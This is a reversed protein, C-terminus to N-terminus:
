SGRLQRQPVRRMVFGSDTRILDVPFSGPLGDGQAPYLWASDHVDLRRWLTVSDEFAVEVCEGSAVPLAAPSLLRLFAKEMAREPMCRSVVADDVSPISGHVLLAYSDRTSRYVEAVMMYAGIATLVTRWGEREENVIVLVRPQAGRMMTLLRDTSLRDDQSSLSRADAAGYGAQALGVVQPVVHQELSHGALEVEVVWWEKYDRHVLAFDARNTGFESVVTSRFRVTFHAPFLHGAEQEVLREFEAESLADAALRNFYHGRAILRPM